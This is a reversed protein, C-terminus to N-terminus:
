VHRIGKLSNMFECSKCGFDEQNGNVKVIQCRSVGYSGKWVAARGESRSRHVETDRSGGQRELEKEM